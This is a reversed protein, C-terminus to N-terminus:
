RLRRRRTLEGAQSKRLIAIHEAAFSSSGAALCFALVAFLKKM